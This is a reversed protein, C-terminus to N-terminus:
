TLLFPDVALQLKLSCGPVYVRAESQLPPNETPSPGAWYFNGPAGEEQEQRLKMEFFLFPPLRSEM